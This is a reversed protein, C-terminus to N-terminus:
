CLLQVLLLDQETKYSPVIKKYVYPSSNFEFDSFLARSLWLNNDRGLIEEELISSRTQGEPM